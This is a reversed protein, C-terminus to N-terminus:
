AAIVSSDGKSFFGFHWSRFGTQMYVSGPKYFTGNEYRTEAEVRPKWGWVALTSKKMRDVDVLAWYNAFGFPQYDVVQIEISKKLNLTNVDNLDTGPLKNSYLAREAADENELSVLLRYKRGRRMEVGKLDYFRNLRNRAIVLSNYTLPLHGETTQFINRQNAIGPETSTHAANALSVGDGGTQHTTTHALYFVKAAQEDVRQYISQYVAEVGEKFEMAKEKDGAMIWHVVEETYSCMKTYKEVEIEVPYGQVRNEQSYPMGELTLQASSLGSITSFRPTKITPWYDEYGLQSYKLDASLQDKSQDLLEVIYPDVIQPLSEITDM